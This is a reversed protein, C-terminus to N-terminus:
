RISLSLDNPYNAELKFLRFKVVLASHKGGQKFIGFELGESPYAYDLVQVTYGSTNSTAFSNTVPVYYSNGFEPQYTFGGSIKDPQSNYHVGFTAGGMFEGGLGYAQFYTIISDEQSFYADVVRWGYEASRNAQPIECIFISGNTQRHLNGIVSNAWQVTNNALSLPTDINAGYFKPQPNSM